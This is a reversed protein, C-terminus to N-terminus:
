KAVCSFQADGIYAVVAKEISQEGRYTQIDVMAGQTNGGDCSDDHTTYMVYVKGSSHKLYTAQTYYCIQDGFSLPEIGAPAPSDVKLLLKFRNRFQLKDYDGVVGLGNLNSDKCNENKYDTKPQDAHVAIGSLLLAALILTKM